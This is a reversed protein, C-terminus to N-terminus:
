QVRDCEFSGVTGDETLALAIQSCAGENDVYGFVLAVESRVTGRKILLYASNDYPWDMKRAADLVLITNEEAVVPFPAALTLILAAHKM